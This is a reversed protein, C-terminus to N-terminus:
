GPQLPASSSFGNIHDPLELLHLPGNAPGPEVNADSAMPLPEPLHSKSRTSGSAMPHWLHIDSVGPADRFHLFHVPDLNPNEGDMEKSM